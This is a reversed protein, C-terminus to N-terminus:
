LVLKTIIFEKLKQKGPSINREGEIRLSLRAPCLIKQQLNIGKM